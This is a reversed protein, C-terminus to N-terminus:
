APGRGGREASVPLWRCTAGRFRHPDRRNGASETNRPAPVGTLMGGDLALSKEGRLRARPRDQAWATRYHVALGANVSPARRGRARVGRGPPGRGITVVPAGRM